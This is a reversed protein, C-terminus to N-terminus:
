GSFPARRGPRKPRRGLRCVNDGTYPARFRPYGQQIYTTQGHIKWRDSESLSGADDTTKAASSEPAGLKRNLGLRVIHTDFSSAYQAGNTFMVDTTGFRSYLYELRMNWNQQFAFEAGGGATWGTRMGPRSQEDGSDPDTRV